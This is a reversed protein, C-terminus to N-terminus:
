SMRRGGTQAAPAARIIPLGWLAPKWLRSIVWQNRQFNTGIPTVKERHLQALMDEDGREEDRRGVGGTTSLPGGARASSLLTLRRTRQPRASMTPTMVPQPATANRASM